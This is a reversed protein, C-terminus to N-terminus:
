EPQPTFPKKNYMWPKQMILGLIEAYPWTRGSAESGVLIDIGASRLEYAVEVMQMLCDDLSLLDIHVGSEKIAKSFQKISMIRKHNTNDIALGKWGFGHDAVILAYHKAPYNRAAWKIFDRLVAPNSMDVERGGGQKDRWDTIANTETPEMGPTLFFRHTISWGGYDPKGPYRDFQIVINVQDTSGVQAIVMEEFANLLDTQIDTDDGDWYMIVTWEKRHKGHGAGNILPYRFHDQSIRKYEKYPSDGGIAVSTDTLLFFPAFCLLWAVILKKM